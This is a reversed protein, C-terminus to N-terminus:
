LAHASKNQKRIAVAAARDASIFETEPGSPDIEIRPCLFMYEWVIRGLEHPFYRKLLCVTSQVSANYTYHGSLLEERQFQLLRDRDIRVLEMWSMTKEESTSLCGSCEFWLMPPDVEPVAMTQLVFLVDLVAFVMCLWLFELYSDLWPDLRKRIGDGNSLFKINPLDM